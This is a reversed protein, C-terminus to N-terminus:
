SRYCITQFSIKSEFFYDEVTVEKNGYTFKHQRASMNSLAKVTKTYGLHILRVRVGKVFANVRAGFSSDRFEIMARALSGPKYFATTCVSGHPPPNYDTPMHDLFAFSHFQGNVNVMLQNHSPRISSYFGKWAELGGGLDSPAMATAFFFRNRGVMVGPGGSRNPHAALIINLASIVPLIDYGRYDPQGVLYSRCTFLDFSLYFGFFVYKSLGQTDINRAFEITLTYESVKDAGRPKQGAKPKQGSKPKQAAGKMGDSDDEDIWPVKIVLPQPLKKASILKTSHDHAVNNLLGHRQWDLTGEALQFIRRKVRRIATNKSPSITVEYEYLPGKPVKVPFFNARLKIARGLTGFDPRYPLEGPQPKIGRLSAVVKDQSNDM